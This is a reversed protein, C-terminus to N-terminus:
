NALLILLKGNEISVLGPMQLSCEITSTKFELTDYSMYWKAEKNVIYPEGDILIEFSEEKLPATWETPTIESLFSHDFILRAPRGPWKLIGDFDDILNYQREVIPFRGRKEGFSQFPGNINIILGDYDELKRIANEVKDEYDIIDDSAKAKMVEYVSGSQLAQTREQREEPSIALTDLLINEMSLRGINDKWQPVQLSELSYALAAGVIMQREHLIWDVINNNTNYASLLRIIQGKIELDGYYRKASVIALWAGIGKLSERDYRLREAEPLVYQLSSFLSAYNILNNIDGSHAYDLLQDKALHQVAIRKTRLFREPFPNPNAQIAKQTLRVLAPSELHAFSVFRQMVLDQFASLRDRNDFAEDSIRVIPVITGDDLKLVRMDNLTTQLGEQNDDTVYVPNALVRPPLQTWGKLEPLHIGVWTGDDYACILPMGAPNFDPWLQAPENLAKFGYMLSEAFHAKEAVNLEPQSPEACICFSAVLLLVSASLKAFTQRM